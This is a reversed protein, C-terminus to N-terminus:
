NEYDVYSTKVMHRWRWGSGPSGSAREPRQLKRFVCVINIKKFLLCNFNLSVGCSPSHAQCEILFGM